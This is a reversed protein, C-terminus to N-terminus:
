DFIALVASKYAAEIKMMDNRYLALIDRKEMDSMKFDRGNELYASVSKPMGGVIMYQRFLLMAKAHIGQELPMRDKFCRRIYNIMQGEGLAWAFEEFDMPYMALRREESTITIGKVNEKISIM